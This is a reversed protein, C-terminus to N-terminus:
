TVLWSAFQLSQVPLTQEFISISIEIIMRPWGILLLRFLPFQVEFIDAPQEVLLRNGAM